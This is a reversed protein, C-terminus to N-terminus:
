NSFLTYWYRTLITNVIDSNSTKIHKITDLYSLVTVTYKYFDIKYM